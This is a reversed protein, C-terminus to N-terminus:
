KIHLKITNARFVAVHNYEVNLSKTPYKGTEPDPEGEPDTLYDGMKPVGGSKETFIGFFVLEPWGDKELCENTVIEDKNTVIGNATNGWKDTWQSAENVNMLVREYSPYTVPDPEHFNSGDANPVTTSFGIYCKGSVNLEPIKATYLKLIENACQTFIM